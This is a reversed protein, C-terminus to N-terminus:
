CNMLGVSSKEWKLLCADIVRGRVLPLFHENSDSLELQGLGDSPVLCMFDKQASSWLILAHRAEEALVVDYPLVAGGDSSDIQPPRSRIRLGLISVAPFGEDPLLVACFRRNRIEVVQDGDVVDGVLHERMLLKARRHMERGEM